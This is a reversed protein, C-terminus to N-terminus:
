YLRRAHDIDDDYKQPHRGKKKGKQRLSMGQSGTELLSGLVDLGHRAGTGSDRVSPIRAVNPHTPAKQEKKFPM